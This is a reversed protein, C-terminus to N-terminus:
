GLQLAFSPYISYVCVTHRGWMHHNLPEDPWLAGRRPHARPLPFGLVGAAAQTSHHDADQCFRGRQACLPFPLSLTHLEAQWGCCLTRFRAPLRSRLLVFTVSFPSFKLFFFFLRDKVPPESLIFGWLVSSIVSHTMVFNVWSQHPSSSLFMTFTGLNVFQILRSPKEMEEVSDGKHSFMLHTIFYCTILHSEDLLAPYCVLM